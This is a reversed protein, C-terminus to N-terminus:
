NNMLVKELYLYQLIVPNQYYYYVPSLLPIKTNTDALIIKCEEEEGGGSGKEEEKIYLSLARLPTLPSLLSLPFGLCAGDVSLM